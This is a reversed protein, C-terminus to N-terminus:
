LFQPGQTELLDVLMRVDQGRDRPAVLVANGARVVVLNEVGLLSILTEPPTHVICNHADLAILDGGGDTHNGQSDAPVVETLSEWSGVDSWSLDAPFVLVQEAKELIATDISASELTDYIPRLDTLEPANKLAQHTGPAYQSLASSIASSSWVFMGSNWLFQGSELYQLAREADPKEVFRQVAHAKTKTAGQTASCVQEEGVEIWGFGTAPHTPRIGLTILAEPREQATRVATDLLDQFAAKPAVIHDAPLVIQVADPNKRTIHANALAIAPLTNKGCPEALIQHTPISPCVEASAQTHAEGTVIWIQEPPIWGSLRECTAALLSQEKGIPLFQKPQSRRSAPWFRTGRGGALIVVQIDPNPSDQM